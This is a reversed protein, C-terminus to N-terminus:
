VRLVKGMCAEEGNGEMKKQRKSYLRTTRIVPAATTWETCVTAKSGMSTTDDEGLDERLRLPGPTEILDIQPRRQRRRERKLACGSPENHGVVLSDTVRDVDPTAM